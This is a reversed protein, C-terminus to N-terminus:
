CVAPLGSRRHWRYDNQEMDFHVFAHRERAMRLIPRLRAAVRRFSGETDVPAFQSDLASLKLSVNLRPMHGHEDCDLQPDDPWANVEASMGEILQLYSQQYRDADANSITAEGLLDLTFAMGSKRMSRVSRLVETVSSGAIFRRAMRAANIRANYALARSLITNGSSLDLGLRVAWPLRDRVEEFYEELHRSISHHDRLMPLVDVFRFMQLKVAEDGMAWNMLRDEWWRTQFVSTSQRGVEAFLQGGIEQTRQERWDESGAAATKKKSSKKAM